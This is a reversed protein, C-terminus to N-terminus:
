GRVKALQRQNRHSGARSASGTAGARVTANRNAQPRKGTDNSRRGDRGDGRKGGAPRGAIGSVRRGPIFVSGAVKSCVGGSGRDGSEDALRKNKAIAHVVRPLAWPLHHSGSAGARSPFM